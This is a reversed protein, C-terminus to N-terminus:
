LHLAVGAAAEDVSGFQTDHLLARKLFLHPDAEWTFGVGGHVQICSRANGLAARGALVRAGAVARDVEHAAASTEAATVAAAYVGGRAVEARAFMDALLHKVAQFSGIPRGFQHRDHAYAVAIDTVAGSIGLLLASTLLSGTRRWFAAANAGTIREGPPLHDVRLLPTTPDLPDLVPESSLSSPEIRHIGDDDFVLVVDAVSGYEILVAGASREVVSVMCDGKPAGDVLPAALASSVLPGPVLARGLEEFVLTLDTLGLDDGFVGLEALGRWRARDFGEAHARVVSLPYRDACFARTTEQLAQQDADLDFDV